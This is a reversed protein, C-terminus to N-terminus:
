LTSKHRRRLYQKISEFNDYCKKRFRKNSKVHYKSKYIVDKHALYLRDFINGFNEDFNISFGNGILLASNNNEIKRNFEDINM